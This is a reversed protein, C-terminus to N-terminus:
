GPRGPLLELDRIAAPLLDALESALLGRMGNVASWKRSAAGHLHAGLRAADLPAHGQALLAGVLGALVDGTGATALARTGLAHVSLGGEPDGVLTSPGKLLAVAGTQRALRRVREPAGKGEAFAGLLRECEGQHPTLIRAAVKADPASALFFLADADFVAPIPLTRWLRRVLEGTEARRGLGPGVVAAHATRSLREVADAHEEGLAAEAPLGVVVGEPLATQAFPALAEPLLLRVLGGGGRYAARACLLAAGLYERSGAVVLVEARRKHTSRPRPRLARAADEPEYLEAAHAAELAESGLAALVVEGAAEPGDGAWLCLKQALFTVTLAACVCPNGAEGTDPDLGSPMDMAAVFGGWEQLARV